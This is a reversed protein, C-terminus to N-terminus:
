APPSPIQVFEIVTGAALESPVIFSTRSGARQVEFTAHTGQQVIQQAKKLDAVGVSIGFPGLGQQKVLSTLPSHPHAPAFFVITGLGCQVEYGTEGLAKVRREGAAAFGFRTAQKVAEAANPVAVWVSLLSRATNAHIEKPSRRPDPVERNALDLAGQFDDSNNPYEIFGVGPGGPVGLPQAAQDRPDIDVFQWQGPTEKGDPTRTTPSPPLNVRLGLQRMADAAQEATSVDLNYAVPGGGMAIKRRVLAALPRAGPAPEQYVWMLEIYPQPPLPIIANELGLSPFKTGRLASFGLRAEFVQKVVESGRLAVIVHDLGWGTGIVPPPSQAALTAAFTLLFAVCVKMTALGTSVNVTITPGGSRRRQYNQCDFPSPTPSGSIVTRIEHSDKAVVIYLKLEPSADVPDTPQPDITMWGTCDSNLFYSGGGPGGNKWLSRVTTFSMIWQKRM